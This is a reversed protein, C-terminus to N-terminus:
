AGPFDGMLHWDSLQHIQKEIIEASGAYWKRPMFVLGSRNLIAASLSFQSNSTVVIRGLRLLAHTLFINESIFTEFKNISSLHKEYYTLDVPSDSLFIVKRIDFHSIKKLLNLVCEDSVIHSAVNLYDGRRLHVVVTNLDNGLIESAKNMDSSLIPFRFDWNKSWVEGLLKTREITGDFLYVPKTQRLLYRQLFNPSKPIKKNFVNKGIGYYDLDWKFISVGEKDGAVFPTRDFYTLDAFVSDSPHFERLHDYLMTGFIQAGLGGEIPIVKTM